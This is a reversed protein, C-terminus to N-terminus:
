SLITAYPHESETFEACCDGSVKCSCPKAYLTPCSCQLSNRSDLTVDTPIPQMVDCGRGVNQDIQKRQRGFCFSNQVRIQERSHRTPREQDIYPAAAM